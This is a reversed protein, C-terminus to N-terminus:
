KARILHLTQPNAAPGNNNRTQTLTLTDGELKFTNEGFAGPAMPGPNKAVTARTTLTTGSIQFTGSNATFPGWVARVQDATAKAFEAQPLNPRASNTVFMMSYHNGSFIVLGTPKNVPNAPPKAFTINRVEWVGEVSTRGAAQGSLAVVGVFCLGAIAVGTIITRRM